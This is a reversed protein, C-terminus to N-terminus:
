KKSIIWFPGETSAKAESLLLGLSFTKQNNKKNKPDAVWVNGNETIGRLVIFHGSSTFTGKGMLAIVLKNHSLADAIKQGELINAQEVQLGFSNAAGEILSHYSGIGEACYGNQYAWDAMQKPNITNDTLTSIVMALCTPGCGTESIFDTKGYKQNGWRIDEQNYYVVESKGSHYRIGKVLEKETAQNGAQGAIWQVTKSEVWTEKKQCSFSFLVSFIIISVLFSKKFHFIPYWIKDNPITVVKSYYAITMFFISSFLFVQLVMELKM